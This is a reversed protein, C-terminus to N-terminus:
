KPYVRSDTHGHVKADTGIHGHVNHQAQVRSHVTVPRRKIAHGHHVVGGRAVHHTNRAHHHVKAPVHLEQHISTSSAILPFALLFSVLYKM